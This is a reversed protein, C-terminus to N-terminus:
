DGSVRCQFPADRQLPTWHCTEAAREAYLVHFGDRPMTYLQAGGPDADLDRVREGRRAAALSTFDNALGERVLVLQFQRSSRTGRELAAVVAQPTSSAGQRRVIQIAYDTRRDGDFDGNVWQQAGAASATALTWGPYTMELAARVERPLDSQALVATGVAVCAAAALTTRLFPM